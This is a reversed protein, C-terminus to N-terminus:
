GNRDGEREGPSGDLEMAIRRTGTFRIRRGGAILEVRPLVSGDTELDFAMGSAGRRFDVRCRVVRGASAVPWDTATYGDLGDPLRPRVSLVDERHDDLGAVLRAVKLPEAVCVVNLAGCGQDFDMRGRAARAHFREYFWYPSERDIRYGEVPHATEHVLYGLARAALDMRDLLLMSQLAYGQGYSPSTLFGDFAAEFQTWFGDAEFLAKRVPQAALKRFTRRSIALDQRDYARPDVGHLDAQYALIGLIGGFGANIPAGNVAPDPELSGPEVTWRWTGDPEVLYTRIAQRLRRAQGDLRVSRDPDGAAGALRAAADLALAAYQNQVSNCHLGEIYCGGGFEGSGALLPRSELMAQLGAIPSDPGLLFRAIAARLPDHEPLRRWLLFLGIGVAATGDLEEGSGAEGFAFREPFMRYGAANPRVLAMLREAVRSAERLHGWLALERLLVGTDRSWSTGSWPRGDVSAHVFGRMGDAEDRVLNKRLVGELSANLELTFLRATEGGHFELRGPLHAM